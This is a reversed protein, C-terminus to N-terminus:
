LHLDKFGVFCLSTSMSGICYQEMNLSPGAWLEGTGNGSVLMEPQPWVNQRHQLRHFTNPQWEWPINIGGSLGNQDM